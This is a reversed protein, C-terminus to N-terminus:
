QIISSAVQWTQHSDFLLKGSIPCLKQVCLSPTIRGQCLVSQEPSVPQLRIIFILFIYWEYEYRHGNYSTRVSDSSKSKKWKRPTRLSDIPKKQIKSFFHFFKSFFLHASATLAQHSLNMYYKRRIYYSYFNYRFIPHKFSCIATLNQLLAKNILVKFRLATPISVTARHLVKQAYGLKSLARSSQIHALLQTKSEISWYFNLM